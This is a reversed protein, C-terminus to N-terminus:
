QQEIYFHQFCIHPSDYKRSTQDLFVIEDEPGLQFTLM